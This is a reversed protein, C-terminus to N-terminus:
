GPCIPMSQTLGSGVGLCCLCNSQDVSGLEGYPRRTDINYICCRVRLVAEEPELILTKKGLVGPFAAMWTCPCCVIHCCQAGKDTIDFEREKRTTFLSM